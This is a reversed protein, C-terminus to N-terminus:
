DVKEKLEVRGYVKETWIKDPNDPDVQVNGKSDLVARILWGEDTDAEEVIGVHLIGDLWVDYRKGARVAEEGTVHM